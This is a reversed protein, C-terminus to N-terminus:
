PQRKEAREFIDAIRKLQNFVGMGMALLPVYVLAAILAVSM